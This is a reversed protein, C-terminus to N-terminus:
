QLTKWLTHSSLDFQKQLNSSPVMFSASREALRSLDHFGPEISQNSIGRCELERDLSLAICARLSTLPCM